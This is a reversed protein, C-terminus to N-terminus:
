LRDRFRKKSQGEKTCSCSAIWAKRGKTKSNSDCGEDWQGGWARKYYSTLSFTRTEEPENGRSRGRLGVLDQEKRGQEV